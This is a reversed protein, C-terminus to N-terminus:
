VNPKTQRETWRDTLLFLISIEKLPYDLINSFMVFVVFTSIYSWVRIKGTM